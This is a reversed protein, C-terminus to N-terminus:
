VCTNEEKGGQVDKAVTLHHADRPSLPLTSVPGSAFMAHPM